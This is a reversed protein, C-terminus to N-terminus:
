YTLGTLGQAAMGAVEECAKTFPNCPKIERLGEHQEQMVKITEEPHKVYAVLDVLMLELDAYAMTKCGVNVYAGVDLFQISINHPPKM